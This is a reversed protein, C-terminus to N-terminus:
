KPYVELYLLSTESHRSRSKKGSHEGLWHASISFRGAAKAKFTLEAPKGPKVVVKLNYGHLHIEAPKDVRWRLIVTDGETVRFVKQGGVLKRNRVVLEVTKTSKNAALAPAAGPAISGGGPGYAVAVFMSLLFFTTFRGM